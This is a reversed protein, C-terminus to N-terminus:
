IKMVNYNINFYVFFFRYKFHVFFEFHTTQPFGSLYCLGSKTILKIVLTIDKYNFCPLLSQPLFSANM